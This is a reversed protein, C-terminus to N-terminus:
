LSIQKNLKLTDIIDFVIELEHTVKQLNKKTVSQWLPPPEFLDKGRHIAFLIEHDKFSAEMWKAKFIKAAEMFREIFAPDLIVRAEIQDTSIVDYQKKWKPSVIKIKQFDTFKTRMASQLRSKPMVVTHGEMARKLRLRIVLGWFVDYEIIQPNQRAHNSTARNQRKEIDTLRIEQLDIQVDHYIGSFGDEHNDEDSLPLIKHGFVEALTMVGEPHYTMSSAEAIANTLLKKGGKRYFHNLGHYVLMCPLMAILVIFVTLGTTIASSNMFIFVGALTTIICVAILFAIMYRKRAKGIDTVLTEVANKFKDIELSKM